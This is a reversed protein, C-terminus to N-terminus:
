GKIQMERCRSQVKMISKRKKERVREHQNVRKRVKM